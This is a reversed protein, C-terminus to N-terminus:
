SCCNKRIVNSIYFSDLHNPAYPITKNWGMTIVTECDMYLFSPLTQLMLVKSQEDQEEKTLLKAFFSVAKELSLFANCFKNPFPLDWLFNEGIIAIKLSKFPFSDAYNKPCRYSLAIQRKSLIVTSLLNLLWWILLFIRFNWQAIPFSHKLIRTSWASSDLFM